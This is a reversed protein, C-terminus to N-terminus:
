FLALPMNIAGQIRRKEYFNAPMADIFLTEGADYAEMAVSASVKTVAENSFSKPFLSIGNPNSANFVLACLLTIGIILVFDFWSLSPPRYQRQAELELRKEDRLLWSSMQKVFALSVDPFDKLVRDFQDKSLVSLQTEELTEVNASRPEGTLLAMEGFSDGPGLQSLETEIGESDKRFVRVKGANIIFFSDGPDGQQFIVTNPPVVTNEVIRAIELM